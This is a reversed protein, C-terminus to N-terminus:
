GNGISEADIVKTFDKDFYFVYKNLVLAGLKNKGRFTHEVKWGKFVPRFDSEIKARIKGISDVKGQYIDKYKKDLDMLRKDGSEIDLLYEDLNKKLQKKYIDYSANVQIYETDTELSTYVSDLKGFEVSEYSNFDNMSKKLDEKILGKAKNIPSTSCSVFLLLLGLLINKM